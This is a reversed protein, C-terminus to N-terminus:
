PATSFELKNSEVFRQFVEPHTELIYGVWLLGYSALDVVTDVFTETPTGSEEDYLTDLGDRMAKDMMNSIRDWKRETNLFISLDGHRCYSRGYVSSKQIQLKLIYPLLTLINKMDDPIEGDLGTLLRRFSDLYPEVKEANLQNMIEKATAAKAPDLDITSPITDQKEDSESVDGMQQHYLEWLKDIKQNITLGPEFEVNRYYSLREVREELTYVPHLTVGWAEELEKVSATLEVQEDSVKELKDLADDISDLPNYKVGVHFGLNRVRDTLPAGSTTIASPVPINWKEELASMRNTCSQVWDAYEMSDSATDSMNKREKIKEKLIDLCKQVSSGSNFEVGVHEALNDLREELSKGAEYHIGCVVEWYILQLGEDVVTDSLNKLINMRELLSHEPRHPVGVMYELFDIQSEIPQFDKLSVRWKKALLHAEYLLESKVKVDNDRELKSKSKYELWRLRDQVELTTHPTDGFFIELQSLHGFTNYDPNLEFNHLKALLQIQTDPDDWYKLVDLKSEVRTLFEDISECLKQFPEGAHVAILDLRSTIPRNPHPPIGLAKELRSIREDNTM